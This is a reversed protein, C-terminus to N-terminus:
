CNKEQEKIKLAANKGACHGTSFASQLNFGGCDGDVDLMEGAFYLGSVIRSEMTKPYVQKLSVGGKTIMAKEIPGNCVIDLRMEKLFNIIATREARTLDNVRKVPDIKKICIIEQALRKVLMGGLLNIISKKPYFKIEKNLKETLVEKTIDPYYDITLQVKRSKALWGAIASSSSLALPGSIGKDTFLFDGKKSKLKKNNSRFIFKAGKISTGELNRIYEQSVEIPVLGSVLETVKHGLQVAIKLGEGSSGTHPYSAGGTALIVCSCNLRIGDDLEIGTVKGSEIIVKGLSHNFLLKVKSQKINKKFVELISEARGSAPFVRGDDEVKYDVGNEKFFQLTNQNSFERFVDGLFKGGQFFHEEYQSINTLNTFNCRRGGTLILKRGLSGNKEILTVKVNYLRASVAAMMGAPGGGVIIVSNKNKM